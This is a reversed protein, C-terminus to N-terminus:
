ILIDLGIAGIHKPVHFWGKEMIESFLLVLAGITIPIKYNYSIDYFGVFLGLGALQYLLYLIRDDTKYWFLLSALGIAVFIHFPIKPYFTHFFHSFIIVMVIRDILIEKKKDLHFLVSIAFILLFPIALEYEGRYYHHAALVLLISDSIIKTPMNEDDYLWQPDAYIAM